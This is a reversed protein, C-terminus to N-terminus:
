RWLLGHDRLAEISRRAVVGALKQVRPQSGDSILPLACAVALGYHQALGFGHMFDTRSQTTGLEALQDLYADILAQEHARRGDVTMSQTILYGLDFSAPGIGVGQWDILSVSAHDTAFLLNDPRLDSHVLTSDMEALSRLASELREPFETGLQQEDASLEDRLLECLPGWGNSALTTLNGIRMPDDLRPLWDLQALRECNWYDHHYHAAQTAVLAVLAPSVGAVQDVGTDAEIAEQILLFHATDPDYWAAYFRPTTVQSSALLEDYCRLERENTRGRKSSALAQERLAAFKCIVARPGTSGTHYSPTVLFIEGLMGRDAGIQEATFSEVPADLAMSLTAADLEGIAIPFKPPHIM